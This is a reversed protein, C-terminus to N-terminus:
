SLKNVGKRLKHKILDTLALVSLIVFYHTSITYLVYSAYVIFTYDLIRKAISQTTLVNYRNM